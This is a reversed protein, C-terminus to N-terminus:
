QAPPTYSAWDVYYYRTVGTTAEGGWFPNNTGWHNIMFYAPADPVNNVHNTIPVDDVYYTVKGPEWVFKYTHYATSIDPVSVTSFDRQSEFPGRRPRTNHWNVMWLYGPDHGSFEFDIETESNNIYNFGASVSGSVPNNQADASMRTRWEYTGYGYTNKSYILGGLSLVGQTGDVPGTQQTLIILLNGNQVSVHSPDYWGLHNEPIYGPAREDAIVWHSLDVSSGGFDDRWATPVDRGPKGGGRGNDPKNSNSSASVNPSPRLDLGPPTDPPGPLALAVTQRLLFAAVLTVAAGALYRFPLRHM